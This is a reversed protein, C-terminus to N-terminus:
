CNAKQARAAAAYIIAKRRFSVVAGGRCLDKGDKKRHVQLFAVRRRSGPQIVTSGLNAFNKQAKTPFLKTANKKQPLPFDALPAKVHHDCAQGKPQWILHSTPQTVHYQM